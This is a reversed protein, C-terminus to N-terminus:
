SSMMCSKGIRLTRESSQGAMRLMPKRDANAAASHAPTPMIPTDTWPISPM